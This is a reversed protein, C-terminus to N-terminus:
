QTSILAAPKQITFTEPLIKEIIIEQMRGPTASPISHGTEFWFLGKRPAKLAVHYQETISSNTQYDKRGAFFYVPCDISPLTEMLNDRSAENFVPLWTAAWKDVFSKSLTRRSGSFVQLWKRHYYLQEGNAFPITVKDLEEAEKENGREMADKKMASLALRESELQNIM